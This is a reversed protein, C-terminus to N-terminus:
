TQSLHENGKVRKYATRTPWPRVRSGIRLHEPRVCANNGCWRTIQHGTASDGRTLQWVYRYAAIHHFFGVKQYTAGTWLWCDGSRDVQRWFAPEGPLDADGRGNDPLTM